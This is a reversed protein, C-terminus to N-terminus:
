AREARRLREMLAPTPVPIKRAATIWDQVHRESSPLSALMTDALTDSPLTHALASVAFWRVSWVPDALAERLVPILVPPPSPSRNGRRLSLAKVAQLRVIPDADRLGLAFADPCILAEDEIWGLAVFVITRVQPRPDKVREAVRRIAAAEPLVRVGTMSKTGDWGVWLKWIKDITQFTKTETTSLREVLSHMRRQADQLDEESHEVLAGYITLRLPM